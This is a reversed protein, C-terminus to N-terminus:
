YMILEFYALLRATGPNIQVYAKSGSDILSRAHNQRLTFQVHVNIKENSLSDVVFVSTTREYTFASM